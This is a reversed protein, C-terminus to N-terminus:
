RNTRGRTLDEQTDIDRPSGPCPVREVPTPADRLLHRAGDDGTRPLHQWTARALKVPHGFRDPREASRYHATAIDATSDAVLRWAKPSIYPQDGLCIVAASAHEALPHALGARLSSAQGSRWAPNKVTMLETDPARAHASAIQQSLDVAGVVVLVPGIGSHLASTLAHEIVSTGNLQATLKHTTGSFRSGRGAALLLAVTHM